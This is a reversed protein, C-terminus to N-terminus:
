KLCLAQSSSIDPLALSSGASRSAVAIADNGGRFPRGNKMSIKRQGFHKLGRAQREGLTFRWEAPNKLCLSYSTTRVANREAQAPSNNV